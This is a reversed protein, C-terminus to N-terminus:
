WRYGCLGGRQGGAWICERWGHLGPICPVKQALELVHWPQVVHVAHRVDIGRRAHVDARDGWWRRRRRGHPVTHLCGVRGWARLYESPVTHVLESRNRPRIQRSPMRHLRGDSLIPRAHRQLMGHVPECGNSDWQGRRLQRTSLLGQLRHKTFEGSRGDVHFRRLRYM